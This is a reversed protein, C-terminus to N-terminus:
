SLRKRLIWCFASSLLMSSPEPVSQFSLGSLRDPIGLMGIPTLTGSSTDLSYLSATGGGGGGVYCNGNLDFAMGSAGGLNVSLPQSSSIAGTNVDVTLLRNAGATTDIVFLTGVSNFAMASMDGDAGMSGVVTANGTM